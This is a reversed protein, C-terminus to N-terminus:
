NPRVKSKDGYRETLYPLIEKGFKSIFAAEDPSGSRIEIDDFGLGVYGEVKKLVDELDTCITWRWALDEIDVREGIRDLERPDWVESEFSKPAAVARWRAISALAKDYDPDWSVNCLIMRRISEPDRGASKAGKKLGALLVDSLKEHKAPTTYLGDARAGALEAMKAGSAALYIPIPRTPKDYINADRVSFYRGRYTVFEESWLSRIIDLSEEVRKMREHFPPWRQGVPVENMAEGTGLGLYVRGPYMAGLTAFCQAVMAPHYRYIPTTVGTGLAIRKTREAASAIWAWAFAAHGGKHFWPHLHDSISAFEFGQVEARSVLDLLETPGYQEAVARYGFRVRDSSSM